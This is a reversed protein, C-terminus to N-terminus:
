IIPGLLIRILPYLDGMFATAKSILSISNKDCSKFDFIVSFNFHILSGFSRLFHTIECRTGQELQERNQLMYLYVVIGGIPLTIGIPPSKKKSRVVLLLSPILAASFSGLTCNCNSKCGLMQLFILPARLIIVDTIFQRSLANLFNFQLNVLSKELCPHNGTIHILQCLFLNYFPFLRTVCHQSSRGSMICVNEKGMKLRM